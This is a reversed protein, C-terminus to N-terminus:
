NLEKTLILKNSVYEERKNNYYYEAGKPIIAECIVEYRWFMRFVAKEYTSYSHLGENIVHNYGRNNIDASKINRVGIKSHYLTNLKYLFNRFQSIFVGYEDHDKVIKYCTIAETAVLKRQYKKVYFCM